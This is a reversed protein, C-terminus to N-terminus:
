VFALTLYCVSVLMCIHPWGFLVYASNESFKVSGRGQVCVNAKQMVGCDAYTSDFNGGM